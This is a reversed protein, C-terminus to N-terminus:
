IAWATDDERLIKPRRARDHRYHSLQPLDPWPYDLVRLFLTMSDVWDDNSGHPFDALEKMFAGYHRMDPDVHVLGQHVKIDAQEARARKDDKQSYASVAYRRARLEEYIQPGGAHNEILIREAKFHRTVNEIHELQQRFSWRGRDVARLYVEAGRIGWVSLATYDATLNTSIASDVSVFVAELQNLPLRKRAYHRFKAMRFLFGAPPSPRQQYQAEFRHEQLARMQDLEAMGLRSPMLLDGPKRIWSKTPSLPIIQEEWAIAPLCLHHWGGTALLKGSLDDVHLRQAVVIIAGEKPSDLRSGVVGTFWDWINKRDAESVGGDSAMADDVIIMDGGRGLLAGDVGISLRQGGTTTEVTNQTSRSLHLRPALERFWDSLLIARSRTNFHSALEATHSATVLKIGPNQMMAFAPFAVSVLLSKAMRPPMSIILRKIRGALVETLVHGIAIMHQGLEFRKGPELHHFCKEAFAMFDTRLLERM